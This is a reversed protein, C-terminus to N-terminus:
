IAESSRPRLSGDSFGYEPAAAASAASHLQVVPVVLRGLVSAPGTVVTRRVDEDGVNEDAVPMDRALEILPFLFGGVAYRLSISLTKNACLAADELGEDETLLLLLLLLPPDELIGVREEEIKESAVSLIQYVCGFSIDAAVAEAIEELDREEGLLVAEGADEKPLPAGIDLM